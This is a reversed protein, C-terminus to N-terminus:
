DLQENFIITNVKTLRNANTIFDIETNNYSGKVFDANGVIIKFPMKINRLYRENEFFLKAEILEDNVYLELWCEGYFELSLSNSQIDKTILYSNDETQNIDEESKSIENLIIKEKKIEEINNIENKSVLEENSFFYIGLLIASFVLFISSYYKINNDLSNDFSFEKFIRKHKKETILEFVSPFECNIELFNLYKNFYAKAFAESPFITYNGEEIAAIHTKNVFLINSVEEISHGLEIRREKFKKGIKVSSASKIEKNM